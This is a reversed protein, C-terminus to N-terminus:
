CWSSYHNQRVHFHTLFWSWIPVIPYKSCTVSWAAFGIMPLGPYRSAKFPERKKRFLLCIMAKKSSHETVNKNILSWFPAFSQSHTRCSGETGGQFWLMKIYKTWELLVKGMLSYNELCQNLIICNPQNLPEGSWNSEIYKRRRRYRNQTTLDVIYSTVGQMQISSM